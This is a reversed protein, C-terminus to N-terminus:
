MGKREKCTSHYNVVLKLLTISVNDAVHVREEWAVRKHNTSINEDYRNVFVMTGQRVVQSQPIQTRTLNKFVSVFATM